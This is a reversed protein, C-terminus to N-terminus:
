VRSVDKQIKQSFYIANIWYGITRFTYFLLFCWNNGEFIGISATNNFYSNIYDHLLSYTLILEIALNLCFSTILFNTVKQLYFEKGQKIAQSKEQKSTQIEQRKMMQNRILKLREEKATDISPKQKPQGKDDRNRWNVQDSEEKQEPIQDILPTELNTGGETLVLSNEAQQNSSSFDEEKTGSM